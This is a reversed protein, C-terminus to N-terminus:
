GSCGPLVDGFRQEVADLTMWLADADQECLTHFHLGDLLAVSEPRMQLDWQARTVGLRSGPSCPDYLAHGEQTSCEPNIRLGISKGARKASPGFTELQRPSNFVIHDACRLLDNWEDKRYATSFVHVEKGPMAEQGLRAEYLGSAETGTLYEALVPYLDFNSFAKQALLVKCGTRDALNALIQGNERLKAEDLIYCPTRLGGFIEAPNQGRLGAFPPRSDPRATM